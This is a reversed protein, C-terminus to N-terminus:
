AKPVVALTEHGLLRSLQYRPSWWSSMGLSHRSVGGSVWDRSLRLKEQVRPSETVRMVSEDLEGPIWALLSSWLAVPYGDRYTVDQEKLWTIAHGKLTMLLAHDRERFAAYLALKSYLEPVIEIEDKGVLFGFRAFQKGDSNTIPTKPMVKAGRGLGFLTRQLNQVLTRLQFLDLGSAVLWEETPLAMDRVEEHFKRMLSRPRHRRISPSVGGEEACPSDEQCLVSLIATDQLLTEPSGNRRIIAAMEKDTLPVDWSLVEDTRPLVSSSTIIRTVGLGPALDSLANWNFKHAAASLGLISAETLQQTGFRATSCVASSLAILEEALSGFQEPQDSNEWASTLHQPLTESLRGLYSTM